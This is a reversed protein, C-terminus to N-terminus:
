QTCEEDGLPFPNMYIVSVIECDECSIVCSREDDDQHEQMVLENKIVRGCVPCFVDQTWTQYAM